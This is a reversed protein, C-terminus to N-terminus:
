RWWAISQNLCHVDTHRNKCPLLVLLAQFAAQPREAFAMRQTMSAEPFGTLDKLAASPYFQRQILM